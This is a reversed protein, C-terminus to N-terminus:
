MVFCLKMIKHTILNVDNSIRCNTFKGVDMAKKMPPTNERKAPKIEIRIAVFVFTFTAKSALKVEKFLANWQARLAPDSTENKIMEM